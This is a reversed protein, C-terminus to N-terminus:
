QVNNSRKPECIGTFSQVHCRCFYHKQLQRLKTPKPSLNKNNYKKETRRVKFNQDIYCLGVFLFFRAKHQIFNSCEMSPDPM